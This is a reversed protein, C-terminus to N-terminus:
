ISTVTINTIDPAACAIAGGFSVEATITQGTCFPVISCIPTVEVVYADQLIISPYNITQSITPYVGLVPANPVANYVASSVNAGGSEYVDIQYQIPYITGAQYEVIVALNNIVLPDGTVTLQVSNCEDGCSIDEPLLVTWPGAPCSVNTSNVANIYVEYSHGPTM